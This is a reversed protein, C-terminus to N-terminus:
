CDCQVKQGRWNYVFRLDGEPDGDREKELDRGSGVPVGCNKISFGLIWDSCRVSLIGIITGNEVGSGVNGKDQPVFSSRQSLETKKNNWVACAHANLEPTWSWM